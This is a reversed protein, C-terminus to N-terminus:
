DNVDNLLDGLLPKRPEQGMETRYIRLLLKEPVIRSRTRSSAADRRIYGLAFRLEASFEALAEELKNVRSELDDVDTSGRADAVASFLGWRRAKVRM